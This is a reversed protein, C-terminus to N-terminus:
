KLLCLPLPTMVTMDMNNFCSTIELGLDQKTDKFFQNSCFRHLAPDPQFIAQWCDDILLKFFCARKIPGIKDFCSFYALINAKVLTSLCIYSADRIAVICGRFSFKNGKEM